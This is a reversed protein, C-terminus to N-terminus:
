RLLGVCPLNFSSRRSNVIISGSSSNSNHNNSNINLCIIITTTIFMATSNRILIM